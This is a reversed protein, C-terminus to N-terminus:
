PNNHDYMFSFVKNFLWEAAGKTVRPKCLSTHEHFMLQNVCSFRWVDTFKTVLPETRSWVLIHMDPPVGFFLGETTALTVFFECCRIVQAVVM